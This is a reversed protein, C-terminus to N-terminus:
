RERVGQLVSIAGRRRSANVKVSQRLPTRPFSGAEVSKGINAPRPRASASFKVRSLAPKLINAADLSGEASGAGV